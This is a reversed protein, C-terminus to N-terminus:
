DRKGITPPPAFHRSEMGQAYKALLYLYRQYGVMARQMRASSESTGSALCDRSYLPGNAECAGCMFVACKPCGLTAGIGQHDCVTCYYNNSAVALDAIFVTLMTHEVLDLLSAQRESLSWLM